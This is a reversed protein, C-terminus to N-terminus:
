ICTNFYQLSTWQQKYNIYALVIAYLTNFFFFFCLVLVNYELRTPSAEMCELTLGLVFEPLEHAGLRQTM